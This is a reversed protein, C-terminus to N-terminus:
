VPDGSAQNLHYRILSKFLRSWHGPPCSPAAPKLLHFLWHLSDGFLLLSPSRVRTKSPAPSRSPLSTAHGPRPGKQSSLQLCGVKVM